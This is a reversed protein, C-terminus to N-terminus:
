DDIGFDFDPPFASLDVDDEDYDHRREPIEAILRATALGAIVGFLHGEWSIGAQPVLGVILGYYLMIAVLAPALAAPRREFWAAGLLAGFYAFVVGSAGIHNGSGGLLWTLGGGLLAGVITVTLWRARGRIAVLGGLIAIPASNSFVHGWDNHLFPAWLIGDLGEAERPQIGGRQLNSGFIFTDFIEVAWIVVIYVAILAFASGATLRVIRQTISEDGAAALHGSNHDFSMGGTM